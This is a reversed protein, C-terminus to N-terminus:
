ADTSSHVVECTESKEDVRRAASEELWGPRSVRTQVTKRPIFGNFRIGIRGIPSEGRPGRAARVLSAPNM